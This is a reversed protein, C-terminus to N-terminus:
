GGYLQDIGAGGELLDDGADGRLIDNGDEGFLKDNGTGGELTDTGAGGYLVDNGGEGYLFDQGGNGAVYDNGAGARIEDGADTGELVDAGIGTQLSISDDPRYTIGSSPRTPFKPKEPFPPRAPAQNSDGEDTLGFIGGVVGGIVGGIEEFPKGANDVFKGVENLRFFKGASDSFSELKGGIWEATEKGKKYTTKAGDWVQEAGDEAIQTLKGGEKILRKGGGIFEEAGGELKNWVQEAGDGAIQTLKEGQKILRKGGGIFEEVGNEGIKWIKDAVKKGNKIESEILDGAANATKRIGDGAANVADLVLETPKDVLVDKVFRAVAKGGKLDKIQEVYGLVKNVKDQIAVPPFGELGFEVKPSSVGAISSGLIVIDAGLGINLTPEPKKFINSFGLKEIESLRVIGPSKPSPDNITFGLTLGTELTTRLNAVNPIGAFAGVGVAGSLEVENGPYDRVFFGDEFSHGSQIGYTDFGFGLQIEAGFKGTLVGGVIGVVPFDVALADDFALKFKPADYSFLTKNENLLIGFATDAPDKLLPINFTSPLDLAPLSINPLLNKTIKGAADITLEGLEIKDGGSPIKKLFKDFSFFDDIRKVDIENGKAKAAFGIVDLLSISNSNSDQDLNIGNFVNQYFTNKYDSILPIEIKLLEFVPNLPKLTNQIFGLNDKLFSGSYFSGSDFSVSFKVAGSADTTQTASIGLKQGFKNLRENIAAVETLQNNAM